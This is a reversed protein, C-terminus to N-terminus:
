RLAAIAIWGNEVCVDAIHFGHEVLADVVRGKENDIIGSCIFIDGEALVAKVDVLMSIIVQALLNAVILNPRLAQSNVGEILNNKELFIDCENLAANEKARIVAMEDLDVGYVM